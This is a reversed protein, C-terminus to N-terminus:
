MRAPDTCEFARSPHSHSESLLFSRGNGSHPTAHETIGILKLNKEGATAAMERITGYAHGSVLTHMHMDAILKKM